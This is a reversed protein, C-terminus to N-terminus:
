ATRRLTNSHPHTIADGLSHQGVLTRYIDALEAAAGTWTYPAVLSAAESEAARGLAERDDLMEGLASSLAAVDGVAFTRHAGCLCGDLIELHPEIRSALIPIGYSAAELLTLPLGELDSPQVFVAANAYVGALEDKYLFGPMVVRPDRDAAERLLAVYDDSFSSGGVVLLKVDHPLLELAQLLLDPRKEPVIRGVFLVYRGPEIGFEERLREPLPGPRPEPVGNPVYTPDCDFRAEYHRTLALSVTVVRNPVRGSMRHAVDLVASALGKWKAREQDLGHVTLVVKARSFYRALPAVLGPGLAHYHIVDSGTVMAHVTSTVSHSIADFHKSGLTPTYVLRMGAYNDGAHQRYSRRCYVTVEMDDRTALLQGIQEVHHEIGGFTAPVGKQGIMAVRVRRDRRAPRRFRRHGTAPANHGKLSSDTRLLVM